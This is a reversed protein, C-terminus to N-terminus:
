AYIKGVKLCRLKELKINPILQSIGPIGQLVLSKKGSLFVDQLRLFLLFKTKITDIPYLKILNIGLLSGMM